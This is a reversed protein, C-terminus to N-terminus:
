PPVAVRHQPIPMRIASIHINRSYIQLHTPQPVPLPAYLSALHRSTETIVYFHSLDISGIRYFDLVIWNLHCIRNPTM